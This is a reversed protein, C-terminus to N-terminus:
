PRNYDSYVDILNKGNSDKYIISVRRILTINSADKVLDNKKVTVNYAGNGNYDSTISPLVANDFDVEQLWSKEVNKLYLKALNNTNIVNQTNNSLDIGKCFPLSISLAIFSFFLLSMVVEILTFGARKNTSLDQYM